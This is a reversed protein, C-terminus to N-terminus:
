QPTNIFQVMNNFLENDYEKVQNFFNDLDASSNYIDIVGQVQDPNTEKLGQVFEGIKAVTYDIGSTDYQQPQPQPPPAQRQPPATPLKNLLMNLRLEELKIKRDRQELLKDVLPMSQELTGKLWGFIPSETPANDALSEAQSLQDELDDIDKRLSVNELELRNVKKELELVYEFSRVNVSPDVPARSPLEIAQIEIAHAESEALGPDKAIYYVDAKAKPSATTKSKLIFVNGPQAQMRTEIEKLRTLAPVKPSNFPVVTEGNLDELCLYKYKQQAHIKKFENLTIAKM